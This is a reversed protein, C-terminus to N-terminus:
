VGEEVLAYEGEGIVGDPRFYVMQGGQAAERGEAVTVRRQGTETFTRNYYVDGQAEVTTLRRIIGDACREEGPLIEAPISDHTSYLTKGYVEDDPDAYSDKYPRPEGCLTIVEAEQDVEVGLVDLSVVPTGCYTGVPTERQVRNNHAILVDLKPSDVAFTVAPISSPPFAHWPLFSGDEYPKASEAPLLKVESDRAEYLKPFDLFLAALRRLKEFALSSYQGTYADKWDQKSAPVPLLDCALTLNGSADIGNHIM